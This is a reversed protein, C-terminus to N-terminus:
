TAPFRCPNHGALAELWFTPCRKTHRLVYLEIQKRLRNELNVGVIILQQRFHQMAVWLSHQEHEFGPVTIGLGSEARPEIADELFVADPRVAEQCERKQRVIIVQLDVHM